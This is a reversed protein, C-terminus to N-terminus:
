PVCGLFCLDSSMPVNSEASSVNIPDDHLTVIKSKM